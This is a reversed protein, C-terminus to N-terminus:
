TCAPDPHVTISLLVVLDGGATRSNSLIVERGRKPDPCETWDGGDTSRNQWTPLAATIQDRYHAYLPAQAGAPATVVPFVAVIAKGPRGDAHPRDLESITSGAAATASDLGASILYKHHWAGAGISDGRLSQFGSSTQGLLYLLQDTIPPASGPATQAMLGRTALLTPMAILLLTRTRM